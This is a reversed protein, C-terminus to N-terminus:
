FNSPAWDLARGTERPGRDSYRKGMRAVVGDQWDQVERVRGASRMIFEMESSGTDMAMQVRAAAQERANTLPHRPATHQQVTRTTELIYAGTNLVDYAHYQVSNYTNWPAPSVTVVGTTAVPIAATPLYPQLRESSRKSRFNNLFKTLVRKLGKPPRRSPGPAAATAPAQRDSLPRSRRERHYSSPEHVEVSSSSDSEAMSPPGRAEDESGDEIESISLHPNRYLHHSHYAPSNSGRSSVSTGTGTMSSTSRPVSVQARQRPRVADSLPIAFGRAPRTRRMEYYHDDITAWAPPAIDINMLTNHDTVLDFNSFVPQTVEFAQIAYESRMPPPAPWSPHSPSGFHQARRTPFSTQTYRTLHRHPPFYGGTDERPIEQAWSGYM